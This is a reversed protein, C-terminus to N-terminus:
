QTTAMAAYHFIRRALESPPMVRATGLYLESSLGLTKLADARVFALADGNIVLIGKEPHAPDKWECMGESNTRLVLEMAGAVAQEVDPLLLM